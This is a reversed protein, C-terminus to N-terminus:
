SIQPIQTRDKIPRMVRQQRIPTEADRICITVDISQVETRRGIAETLVDPFQNSQCYVTFRKKNEHRTERVVVLGKARRTRGLKGAMWRRVAQEGVSLGHKPPFLSDSIPLLLSSRSSPCASLLRRNIDKFWFRLASENKTGKEHSVRTDRIPCRRRRRRCRVVSGVRKRVRMFDSDIFLFSDTSSSHEAVPSAGM